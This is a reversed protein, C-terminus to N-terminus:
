YIGIQILQAKMGNEYGSIDDHTGTIFFSPVKIVELDDTDWVGLTM